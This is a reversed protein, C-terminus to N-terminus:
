LAKLFADWEEPRCSYYSGISEEANRCLQGNLREKEEMSLADLEKEKGEGFDLMSAFVNLDKSMGM